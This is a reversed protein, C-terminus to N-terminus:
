RRGLRPRGHPKRAAGARPLGWRRPAHRSARWPARLRDPAQESREGAHRAAERHGPDGPAPPGRGEPPRPHTEARASHEQVAGPGQVRAM